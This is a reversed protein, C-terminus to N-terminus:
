NEEETIDAVLEATLHTVDDVYGQIRKHEPQAELAQQWVFTNFRAQVHRLETAYRRSQEMTAYYDNLTRELRQRQLANREDAWCLSQELDRIRRSESRRFIRM